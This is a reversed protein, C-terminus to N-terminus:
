WRPHYLSIQDALDGGRITAGSAQAYVRLRGEGDVIFIELKDIPPSLGALPEALLGIQERIAEDTMEEDSRADWQVQVLVEGEGIIPYAAANRRGPGFVEGVAARVDLWTRSGEVASYGPPIHTTRRYAYEMGSRWIAETLEEDTPNEIMPIARMPIIDIYWGTYDRDVVMPNIGDFLERVCPIAYALRHSISAGRLFARASNEEAADGRAAPDLQPDVLWVSLIFERNITLYHAEFSEGTLLEDVQRLVWGPDCPSTAPTLIVSPAPSFPVTAPQLGDTGCGRAMSGMGLALAVLLAFRRADMASYMVRGCRVMRSVLRSLM